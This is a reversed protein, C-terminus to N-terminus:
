IQRPELLTKIESFTVKWKKHHIYVQIESGRLYYNLFMSFPYYCHGLRRRFWLVFGVLQWQEILWHTYRQLRDTSLIYSHWFMESSKSCLFWLLATKWNLVCSRWLLLLSIWGSSRYLFTSILNLACLANRSDGEHSVSLAMRNSLWIIEFDQSCSFLIALLISVNRLCKWLFSLNSVLCSPHFVSLLLILTEDRHSHIFIIKLYLLRLCQNQSRIMWFYFVGDMSVTVVFSWWNIVGTNQKNFQCM